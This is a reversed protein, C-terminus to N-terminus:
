PVSSPRCNATAAQSDPASPMMTIGGVEYVRRLIAQRRVVDRYGARSRQADNQILAPAGQELWPSHARNGVSRGVDDAELVAAVVHM